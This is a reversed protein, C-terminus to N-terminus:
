LKDFLELNKRFETVFFVGFKAYMIQEVNQGQHLGFGIAMYMIQDLLLRLANNGKIAKISQIFANREEFSLRMGNALIAGDKQLMIADRIPYINIAQTLKSIILHREENTIEKDLCQLLEKLKDQKKPVRQKAKSM